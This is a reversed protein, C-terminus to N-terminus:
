GRRTQMMELRRWRAIAPEVGRCAGVSSLEILDGSTIGLNEVDNYARSMMVNNLVLAFRM